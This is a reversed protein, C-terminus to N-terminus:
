RAASPAEGSGKRLGHTRRYRDSKAAQKGIRWALLIRQDETRAFTKVRALLREFGDTMQAARAMRAIELRREPTQKQRGVIARCRNSCYGHACTAIGCCGPRHCPFKGLGRRACNCDPKHGDIRCLHKRPRGM